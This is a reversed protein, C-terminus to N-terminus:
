SLLTPYAKSISSLNFLIPSLKDDVKTPFSPPVPLPPTIINKHGSPLPLTILARILTFDFINMEFYTSSYSHNTVSIITTYSCHKEM